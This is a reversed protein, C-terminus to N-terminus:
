QTILSSSAILIDYMMVTMMNTVLLAAYDYVILSVVISLLLPNDIM